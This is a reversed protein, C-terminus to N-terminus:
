KLDSELQKYYVKKGEIFTFLYHNYLMVFLNMCDHLMEGILTELAHPSSCATLSLLPYKFQSNEINVITM